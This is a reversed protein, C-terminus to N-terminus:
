ENQLDREEQFLFDFFDKREKGDDNEPSILKETSFIKGDFDNNYEKFKSKWKEKSDTQQNFYTYLFVTYKKKGDENEANTFYKFLKMTVTENELMKDATFLRIDLAIYSDKEVVKEIKERIVVDSTEDFHILKTPRIDKKSESVKKPTPNTEDVNLRCFREFNYSIRMALEDLTVSTIPINSGGDKYNDGTFIIQNYCDREWLSYFLEDVLRGINSINDDVWTIRKM